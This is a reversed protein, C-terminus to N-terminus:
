KLKGIKKDLIKDIEKLKTYPIEILKIGRQKCHERLRRDRHQQSQFEEEPHWAKVRRYHQEGNYETVINHHPLYSDVVLYHRGILVCQLPKMKRQQKYPRNNHVLWSAITEEGRSHSCWQCGCGALHKFPGIEFPGHKHCIITVPTHANVYKTRSYDYKDGNVSKAKSIFQETTLCLREYSCWKCGTGLRAQQPYVFVEGHVPCILCIKHRASIYQVKSYDYKDGLVGKIEAIFEENTPVRNKSCKPCLNGKLHDGPAVEFVGHIPCIVRVKTDNNIYVVKSYDYRDGHVSRAKRIFDEVTDRKRDYYCQKCGRGELFADARMTVEGHVPCKATVLKNAGRYVSESFDFSDGCAEKARRIFDEQTLKKPMNKCNFVCNFLLHPLHLQEM